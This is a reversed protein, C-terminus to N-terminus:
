TVARLHRPEIPMVYAAVFEEESMLAAKSLEATSYGHEVRHVTLITKELASLSEARELLDGAPNFGTARGARVFSHHRAAGAAELNTKESDVAAPL